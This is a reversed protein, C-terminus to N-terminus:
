LGRFREYYGQIQETTLGKHVLIQNRFSLSKNKPIAIPERGPFAVNQMSRQSRLIWGKYSPLKEPEGMIVIGSPTSSSPDFSGTLNMWPGAQVPLNHPVVEGTTSNFRVDEPLMFRPSFGGYGKDDESGGIEVGDVLATLKIDFTLAYVGDDLREYSVLLNEKVIPKDGPNQLWYVQAKIQATGKKIKESTKKVDWTIGESIWPDGVRKGEAYLQHWAWFIGHHHLHDEPFDETLVEGNLGHLPHIYNARPYKGDKSKTATQYFFRPQGNELLLIGENSKEFKLSQPFVKFQLLLLIFLLSYFKTNVIMTVQSNLKFYLPGYVLGVAWQKKVIHYKVAM